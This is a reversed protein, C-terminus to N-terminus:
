GFTAVIAVCGLVGLIIGLAAGIIIALLKRRDSMAEPADVIVLVM